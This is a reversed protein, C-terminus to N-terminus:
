LTTNDDESGDSHNKNYVATVHIFISTSSLSTASLPLPFLRWAWFPNMYLRTAITRQNPGSCLAWYIPLETFLSHFILFVQMEWCYLLCLDYWSVKMM